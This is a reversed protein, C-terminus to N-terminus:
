TLILIGARAPLAHHQGRVEDPQLHVKCQHGQHHMQFHALPEGHSPPLASHVGRSYLAFTPNVDSTIGTKGKTEELLFCIKIERSCPTGASMHQIQNRDAASKPKLMLAKNLEQQFVKNIHLLVNRQCLMYTMQTVQCFM